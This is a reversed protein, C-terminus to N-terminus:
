KFGCANQKRELMSAPLGFRYPRLARFPHSIDFAGRQTRRYQNTKEFQTSFTVTLNTSPELMTYAGGDPSWKLPAIAGVALTETTYIAKSDDNYSGREPMGAISVGLPALVVALFLFLQSLWTSASRKMLERAYREGM